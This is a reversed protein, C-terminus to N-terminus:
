GGVQGEARGMRCGGRLLCGEEWDSTRGAAALNRSAAESSPFSPPLPPLPSSAGVITGHVVSGNKLEVSVTENSLKM